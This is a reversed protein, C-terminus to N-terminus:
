GHFHRCYTAGLRQGRGVFKCSALVPTGGGGGGGGTSFESRVPGNTSGESLEVDDACV